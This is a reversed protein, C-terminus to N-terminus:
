AFLTINPRRKEMMKKVKFIQLLEMMIVFPKKNKSIIKIWNIFGKGFSHKATHQVLPLILHKIYLAIEPLGKLKSSDM